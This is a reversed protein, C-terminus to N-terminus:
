VKQIIDCYVPMTFWQGNGGRTDLTKKEGKERGRTNSTKKEGKKEGAPIPLLKPVGIGLKEQMKAGFPYQAGM